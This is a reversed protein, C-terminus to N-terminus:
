RVTSSRARPSSSASASATSSPRRRQASAGVVEDRDGVREHLVALGRDRREQLQAPAPRREQELRGLLALADPAPREDAVLRAAHQAPAEGVAAIRVRDGGGLDRAVALRRRGAQRREGAARHAEEAEVAHAGDLREALGVRVHEAQRVHRQHEGVHQHREVVELVRDRDQGVGVDVLGPSLGAARSRMASTRSRSAPGSGRGARRGPIRSSGVNSGFMLRGSNSAITARM